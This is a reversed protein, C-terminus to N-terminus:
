LDDNQTALWADYDAKTVEVAGKTKKAVEYKEPPVEVVTGNAKRWYSITPTNAQPTKVPPEDVKPETPKVESGKLEGNQGPVAGISYQYAIYTAQDIRRHTGELLVSKPKAIYKGNPDIWWTTGDEDAFKFHKGMYDPRAMFEDYTIRVMDPDTSQPTTCPVKYTMGTRIHLYYAQDTASPAIFESEVVRWVRLGAVRYIPDNDLHHANLHVRLRDQAFRILGNLEGQMLDPVFFSDGVKMSKLKAAYAEHMSPTGTLANDRDVEGDITIVIRQTM